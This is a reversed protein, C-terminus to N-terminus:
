SRDPSRIAARLRLTLVKVALASSAYDSLAAECDDIADLAGAYVPAPQESVIGRLMEVVDFASEETLLRELQRTAEFAQELPGSLAALYHKLALVVQGFSTADESARILDGPKGLRAAPHDYPLSISLSGPDVAQLRLLVCRSAITPLVSHGGPAILIIRAYSPPEELMKLFANAAGPSLTHAGDIVGVRWAFRPRKELWRSLPEVEAGERPVLQEIRLEPRRSKRGSKTWAEPAVERYDPHDGLAMARCSDCSGCPELPPDDLSGGARPQGTAPAPVPARCNLLAAYWAALRRRGVRDPGVFLFAHAALRPLLSRAQEHGHLLPTSTM